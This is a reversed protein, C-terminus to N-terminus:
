KVVANVLKGPVGVMKVVQKGEILHDMFHNEQVYQVLEEKGLNAPVMRRDRVKGNVQLVIEVQKDVTKEPDYKPWPQKAIEGAFGNLQWMEETVHPAIPNFLQM